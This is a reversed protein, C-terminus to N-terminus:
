KFYSEQEKTGYKKFVDKTIRESGHFLGSYIKNILEPKLKHRFIFDYVLFYGYNSNKHGIIYKYSGDKFKARVEHGTKYITGEQDIFLESVFGKGTYSGIKLVETTQTQNLENM